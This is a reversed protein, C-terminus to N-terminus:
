TVYCRVNTRANGENRTDVTKNQTVYDDLDSVFAMLADNTLAYTELECDSRRLVALWSRILIVM